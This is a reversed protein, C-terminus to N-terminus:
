SEEFHMFSIFGIMAAIFLIVGMIDHVALGIVLGMIDILMFALLALWKM